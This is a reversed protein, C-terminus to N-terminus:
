SSPNAQVTYLFIESFIEIPFCHSKHRLLSRHVEDRTLLHRNNYFTSYPFLSFESDFTLGLYRSNFDSWDFDSWDFDSWDFDFDMSSSQFLDHYGEM